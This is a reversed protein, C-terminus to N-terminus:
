EESEVVDRSNLIQTAAPVQIKQTVRLKFVDKLILHAKQYNIKRHLFCGVWATSCRLLLSKFGGTQSRLHKTILHKGLLEFLIIAMNRYVKFRYKFIQM